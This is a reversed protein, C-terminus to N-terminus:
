PISRRREREGGAVAAALGSTRGLLAHEGPHDYTGDAVDLAWVSKVPSSNQRRHSSRDKQM